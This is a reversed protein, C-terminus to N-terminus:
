HIERLIGTEREGERIKKIKINQFHFNYELYLLNVCDGIM